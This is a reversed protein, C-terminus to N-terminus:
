IVMTTNHTGTPYHLCFLGQVRTRASKELEPTFVQSFISEWQYCRILIESPPLGTHVYIGKGFGEHNHLHKNLNSSNYHAQYSFLDEDKNVAKTTVKGPSSLVVWALIILQKHSHIFHNTLNVITSQHVWIVVWNTYWSLNSLCLWDISRIMQWYTWNDGM